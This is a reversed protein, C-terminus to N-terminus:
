FLTTQKDDKNIKPKKTKESAEFLSVQKECTVQKLVNNSNKNKKINKPKEIKEFNKPKEIKEFNSDLLKAHKKIELRKELFKSERIKQAEEFIKQVKKTEPKSGMLFAIETLDFDFQAVFTVCREKDKFIGKLLNFENQAVEKTSSHIQKGIKKCIEKKLVRVNKTSGLKRIIGPFQYQAWGTYTNERSLTTGTTMLEASYRKLGWYQRKMIRGNHVDGKSFVDFALATDKKNFERPINEEIWLELMNSDVESKFRAERAEKFTKARFIKEVTKFINENRERFGIAELSKITIKESSLTQLDFLSARMDGSSNKALEKVAEEDFDTGIESCLERLRKAVSLYNIKKFHLLETNARIPALKQSKFIENATLIIPNSSQKIIKLIASAGGKDKAQLGDVEDLFILRKSGSFSSSQSAAGVLKEIKEKSRLDSANLEFLSWGFEEALLYALTTKGTGPIGYLFLPKQKKGSNWLSAWERAKSVIESNGIFEDFNKPFFRNTFLLSSEQM